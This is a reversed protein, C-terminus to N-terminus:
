SGTEAVSRGKRPFNRREHDRCGRPRSQRVAGKILILLLPFLKMCQARKTLHTYNAREGSTSLECFYPQGKEIKEGRGREQEIDSSLADRNQPLYQLSLTRVFCVYGLSLFVLRTLCQNSM